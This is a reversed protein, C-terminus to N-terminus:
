GGSQHLVQLLVTLGEFLGRGRRDLPGGDLHHGQQELADQHFLAQRRRDADPEGTQLHRHQPHGDTLGVEKGREIVRSPGQNVAHARADHAKGGALLTIFVGQVLFDSADHLHDLRIGVGASAHELRHQGLELLEQLAVEPVLVLGTALAHRQRLLDLLAFGPRNLVGNLQALHQLGHRDM